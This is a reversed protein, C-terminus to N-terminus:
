LVTNAWVLHSVIIKSELELVDSAESLFPMGSLFVYQTEKCLVFAMFTQTFNFSGKGWGNKILSIVTGRKNKSQFFFTWYSISFDM